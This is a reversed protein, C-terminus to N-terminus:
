KWGGNIVYGIVFSLVIGVSISTAVVKVAWNAVRKDESPNDQNPSMKDLDYVYAFLVIDIIIM